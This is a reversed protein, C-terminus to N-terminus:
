AKKLVTINGNPELTVRRTAGIDDLGELGERRLAEALDSRSVNHRRRARENLKGDDALVVARGEVWRSIWENRAVAWSLSWHLLALVAVAAMTALLPASGTLARSLSSGAIISIVFDLPSWGAFIRRGSFRLFVLGYAFILVARLCEQGIDLDHFAGFIAQM